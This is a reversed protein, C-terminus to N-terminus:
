NQWNSMMIGLDRSNVIKDGNVDAPSSTVNKMWDIALLAFDDNSYKKTITIQSPNRTTIVDVTENLASAQTSSAFSIASTGGDGIARFSFTAVSSDTKVPTPPNNLPVGVMISATGNNNDYVAAQLPMSFASSQTISNVQFKSVDYTVHLEVATIQNTGPNIKADLIFNQDKSVTIASPEFRIISAAAAKANNLNKLLGAGIIILVGVISLTLLKPFFRFKSSNIFNNKKKM